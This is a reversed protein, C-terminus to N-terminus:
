PTADAAVTLSGGHSGPDLVLVDYPAPYAPSMPEGSGAQWLWPNAADIRPLVQPCFYDRLCWVLPRSAEGVHGVWDEGLTSNSWGLVGGSPLPSQLSAVLVRGDPVTLTTLTGDSPIAPTEVADGLTWTTGGDAGQRITYSGDVPLRYVERMRALDPRIPTLVSGDPAVVFVQRLAPGDLVLADGAQGPVRVVAETGVAATADVTSGQTADIVRSPAATTRATATSTALLAYQYEGAPTAPGYSPTPSFLPMPPSGAYLQAQTGPTVVTDDAALVAGMPQTGDSASAGFTVGADPLLGFSYVVLQSPRTPTFEDPIGNVELVRREALAITAWAPDRDYSFRDLVLRYSGTAPLRWSMPTGYSPLYSSVTSGDHRLVGPQSATIIQGATGTFTLVVKQGPGVRVGDSTTTVATTYDPRHAGVWREPSLLRKEGTRAKKVVRYYSSGEPVRRAFAYSTTGTLKRSALTQWADTYYRRRQLVVTAGARVGVVRGSFRVRDTTQVTSDSVSLTVRATARPSSSQAPGSLMAVGALTLVTCVLVALRRMVGTRARDSM